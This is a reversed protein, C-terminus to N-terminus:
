SRRALRPRAPRHRTQRRRGNELPRRPTGRRLHPAFRNRPGLWWRRLRKVPAAAFDRSHTDVDELSPAAAVKYYGEANERYQQAEFMRREVKEHFNHLLDLRAKLQTYEGTNEYLSDIKAKQAAARNKLAKIDVELTKKRLAYETSESSAASSPIKGSTLQQQLEAIESRVRLVDPHQDLKGQAKLTILRNEADRLEKQLPENKLLEARSELQQLESEETDIKLQTDTWEKEYAASEILPSVIGAGSRFRALKQNLEAEEKETESLRSVFRAYTLNPNDLQALHSQEMAAATYLNAFDLLMVPDKGAITVTVADSDKEQDVACGPARLERATMASPTTHYAGLHRLLEPSTLFDVRSQVSLKPPQYSDADAGPLFSASLDRLTFTVPLTYKARSFGVGYAIAGGAILALLLWYWRRRAAEIFRSTDFSPEHRAPRSAPRPRPEAQIPQPTALQLSRPRTEIVVPEVAQPAPEPQPAPNGAAASRARRRRLESISLEAEDSM